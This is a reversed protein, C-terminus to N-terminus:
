SPQNSLLDYEMFTHRGLLAPIWRRAPQQFVQRLKRVLVSTPLSWRSIPHFSYRAFYEPKVTALWLRTIQSAAARETCKRMLMGGIGQGQLSPLVAVGFIEALQVTDRHLGACAVAKGSADRAVLFDRLNRRVEVESEQFLGLDDRNAIFISVIAQTDRATAPEINMTTTTLRLKCRISSRNSCLFLWQAGSGM